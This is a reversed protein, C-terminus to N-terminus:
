MLDPINYKRDRFITWRLLTTTNGLKNATETRKKWYAPGMKSSSYQIIVRLIHQRSKIHEDFVLRIIHDDMAPPRRIQGSCLKLIVQFKTHMHMAMIRLATFWCWRSLNLTLIVNWPWIHYFLKVPECSKWKKAPIQESNHLPACYTLITHSSRLDLDCNLTLHLFLKDLGHSRFMWCAKHSAFWARCHLARPTM